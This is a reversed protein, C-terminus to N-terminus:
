PMSRAAVMTPDMNVPRILWALDLVPAASGRGPRPRSAAEGIDLRVTVVGPTPPPPEVAVRALAWTLAESSRTTPWSWVQLGRVPTLAAQGDRHLGGEELLWRREVVKSVRAGQEPSFPLSLPEALHLQREDPNVAAVEVLQSQGQRDAILCRDGPKLGGLAAVPVLDGGAAVASTLSQGGRFGNELFQIIVEEGERHLTIGPLHGALGFGARRLDEAMRRGALRGGDGLQAKRSAAAGIDRAQTVAPLVAALILGTLALSVLAESLVSGREARGM